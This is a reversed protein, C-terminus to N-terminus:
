HLEMRAKAMLNPRPDAREFLDRWRAIAPADHTFLEAMWRASYSQHVLEVEIAHVADPDVLEPDLDFTVRDTGGVFDDDVFGAPATRAADPGEPQWGLPLLRNDLAFWAGRLLLHTPAGQADAMVARYELVEEPGTIRDFHPPIPGGAAESALPEGDAGLIRGREDYAGSSFLVAGDAGLVRAVLWARRSPHATPLKHGTRNTVQVDFVFRGGEIYPAEIRVDASDDALQARTAKVAADFAEPPATAGLEGGYDRLLELVMTNGGVVLHNGFPQRQTLGPFDRGAPNRAIRTAYPTGSADSTRVHCDQCSQATVPAAAGDATETSFISNRWELYPAQELLTHGTKAGAPTLADTELTHCSGCHASELLQTGHAPTFGTMPRMPRTFPNAHPGFLRRESDLEFHATYSAETGLGEPTIGHCVTCSVGDRALEALAYPSTATGHGHAGSAPLEGSRADSPTADDCDLVHMASLWAGDRVVEGDEVRYRPALEAFAESGHADADFAGIGVRTAMPAHCSLCKREIADQAAPTGAVEAAVAARWLPDRASNAMMTGQWLDFPAIAAGAADRLSVATDVNSHCRACLAAPKVMAPQPEVEAGDGQVLSWAPLLPVLLLFARM